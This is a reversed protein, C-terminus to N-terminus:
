FDGAAMLCNWVENQSTQFKFQTTSPVCWPGPNTFDPTWVHRDPGTTTGITVTATNITAMLRFTSGSDYSVFIYILGATTSVTAEFIFGDIISGNAGVSLASSLSGGSTSTSGTGTTQVQSGRPTQTFAPTATVTM